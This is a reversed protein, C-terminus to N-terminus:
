TIMLPCPTLMKVILVDFKMIMSITCPSPLIICLQAGFAEYTLYQLQALDLLAAFFHSM